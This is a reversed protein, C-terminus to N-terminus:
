VDAQTPQGPDRRRDGPAHSPHRHERHRLPQDSARDPDVRVSPSEGQFRCRLSRAQKTALTRSLWALLTSVGVLAALYWILRMGSRLNYQLLDLSFLAVMGHGALIVMFRIRPPLGSCARSLWGLAASIAVGFALLWGMGLAALEGLGSYPTSRNLSLSQRVISWDTMVGPLPSLTSSLYGAPLNGAARLHVTGALPVAFLVNGALAGVNPTLVAAPDARFEASFPALGAEGNSRLSLPLQLLFLTMVGTIVGVAITRWRASRQFGRGMFLIVPLMAIMRTGLAFLVVVQMGLITWCGFRALGSRSRDQATFALLAVAVPTAMSSASVLIHPGYAALYFPRRVLASPTYAAITALAVCLGITLVAVTPVSKIYASTGKVPNRHRGSQVALGGLWFGLSGVAFIAASDLYLSNSDPLRASVQAVAAISRYSLYGTVGVFNLTTVVTAAWPWSEGSRLSLTKIQVLTLFAVSLIISLTPMDLGVTLIAWFAGLTLIVASARAPKM